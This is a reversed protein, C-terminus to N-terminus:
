LKERWVMQPRGYHDRWLEVPRLTLPGGEPCVREFVWTLEEEPCDSRRWVTYDKDENEERYYGDDYVEYYWGSVRVPMGEDDYEQKLRDVHPIRFPNGPNALCDFDFDDNWNAEDSKRKDLVVVRGMGDTMVVRRPQDEVMEVLTQRERVPEGDEGVPCLWLFRGHFRAELAERLAKREEKDRGHYLSLRRRARFIKAMEEAEEDEDDRDWRSSEAEVAEDYADQLEDGEAGLLGEWDIGSM